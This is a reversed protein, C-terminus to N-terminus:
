QTRCLKRNKIRKSGYSIKKLSRNKVVRFSEYDSYRRKLFWQEYLEETANYAELNTDYKSCFSYYQAIFGELDLLKLINQPIKEM